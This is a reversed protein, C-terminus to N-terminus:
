HLPTDTWERRPHHRIQFQCPPLLLPQMRRHHLLPTQLIPTQRPQFGQVKHPHIQLLLIPPQDGAMDNWRTAHHSLLSITIYITYDSPTGYSAISLLDNSAILCHVLQNLVISPLSYFATGTITHQLLTTPTPLLDRSSTDYPRHVNMRNNNQNEQDIPLSTASVSLRIEM